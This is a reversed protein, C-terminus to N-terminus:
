SFHMADFPYKQHLFNWQFLNMLKAHFHNLNQACFASFCINVGFDNCNFRESNLLIWEWEWLHFFIPYHRTNNFSFRIWFICWKINLINFRTEHVVTEDTANNKISLFVSKVHLLETHTSEYLIDFNSTICHSATHFGIINFKCNQMEMRPKQPKKENAM